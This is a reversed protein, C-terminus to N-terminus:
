GGVEELGLVSGFEVGEEEDEGAVVDLRAGEAFVARFGKGVWGGGVGVEEWREGWWGVGDWGACWEGLDERGEVGEEDRGVM